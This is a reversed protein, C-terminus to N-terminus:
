GRRDGEEKKDHCCGAPSEVSIPCQGSIGLSERAAGIAMLQTKMRCDTYLLLVTGTNYTYDGMLQQTEVSNECEDYGMAQQLHIKEM